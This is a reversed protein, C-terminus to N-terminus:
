KVLLADIKQIAEAHSPAPANMDAVKFEKDFLLVRPISVINYADLKARNIQWQIGDAKREDVSKKWIEPGDDISLSVFAVNSNEKYKEKLKEFYPMEAMCPGCWTAWLDVYIVKGKLSSLKIPQGALDIATFDVAPDNKGFSLLSKLMKAVANSYAPTSIDSIKSTFRGLEQKDSYKQMERVLADAKYWDQIRQIQDPSGGVKIIRDAIDRYVVMKMFSADTFNKNLSAVKPTYANIYDEASYSTGDAKPKKKGPGYSRMSYMSNILDAKIRATELRRFEPSINVVAALQRSREAAAQEIAAITEEPTDKILRGAELYSGGKPFPTDKMYSNAEAGIGKFSALKPNSKDIYVELNDGPSLYMSNRGLRYYNPASAKFQISFKGEADPVIMREATPPLLQQFESLDEIEVQNSFNKLQGKITIMEKGKQAFAPHLVGAFLFLIIIIKIRNMKIKM